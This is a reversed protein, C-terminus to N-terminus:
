TIESLSTRGFPSNTTQKSTVPHFHETHILNQYLAVDSFSRTANGGKTICEGMSQKSKAPKGARSSAGRTGGVSWHGRKSEM